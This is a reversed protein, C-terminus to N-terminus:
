IGSTITSRFSTGTRWKYPDIFENEYEHAVTEKKGEETHKNTRIINHIHVAM